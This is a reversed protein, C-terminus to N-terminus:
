SIMLVAIDQRCLIDSVQEDEIIIPFLVRHEFNMIEGITIIFFNRQYGVQYILVGLNDFSKHSFM